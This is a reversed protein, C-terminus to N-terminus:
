DAVVAGRSRVFCFGRRFPGRRRAQFRHLTGDEMCLATVGKCSGDSPDMMLDLAFYEVTHTDHPLHYYTILPSQSQM